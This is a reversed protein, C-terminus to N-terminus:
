FSDQIKCAYGNAVLAQIKCAYGNAVLAFYMVLLVTCLGQWRYLVHAHGSYHFADGTVALSVSSLFLQM